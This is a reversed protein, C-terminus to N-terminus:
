RNAHKALLNVQGLQIVLLVIGLFQVSSVSFTLVPTIDDIFQILCISLSKALLITYNAISIPSASILFFIAVQFNRNKTLSFRFYKMLLWAFPPAITLACSSTPIFLLLVSCWLSIVSQYEIMRFAIDCLRSM